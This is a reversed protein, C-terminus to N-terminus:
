RVLRLFLKESKKLPEVKGSFFYVAWASNSEATDQSETWYWFWFDKENPFEGSPKQLWESMPGNCGNSLGLPCHRLNQLETVTPIRWGNLNVKKTEEWTFQTPNGSCVKGNWDQGVSCRQWELGTRKDKLVGDAVTIFDHPMAGQPIKNQAFAPLMFVAFAFAFLKM